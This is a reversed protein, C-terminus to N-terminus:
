LVLIGKSRMEEVISNPLKGDSVVAFVEDLDAVLHTGWQDVKTHDILVVIKHSQMVIKRKIVYDNSVSSMFGRGPIYGSAGIFAIDFYVHEVQTTAIDGNVSSSEKLVNGGIIVIQPKELQMLQTVCSLGNSYVTYPMDPMKMAFFTCTSGSDLYIIGHEPVLKAAKDAILNKEEINQSLRNQFIDEHDYGALMNISKAGGHVRILKKQFDLSQLDRRLTIDSVDPIDQKMEEISLSGKARLLNLILEQREKARM